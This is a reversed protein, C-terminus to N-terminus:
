LVFHGQKTISHRIGSSVNYTKSFQTLLTSCSKSEFPVDNHSCKISHSCVKSFAHVRFDLRRIWFWGRRIPNCWQLGTLSEECLSHWPYSVLCDPQSAETINSIQFIRLIGESGPGTLQPQLISQYCWEVGTLCERWLSPWPNVLLRITLSWYHQLKQFHLTDKWQRAWEAPAASYVSHM